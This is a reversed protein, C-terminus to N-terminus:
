TSSRHFQSRLLVVAALGGCACCSFAVLVTCAAPSPAFLAACAFVAACAVFSASVFSIPVGGFFVCAGGCSLLCCACSCISLECLLTLEQLSVACAFPLDASGITKLSFGAMRPSSAIAVLIVVVLGQVRVFVELLPVTSIADVIVDVTRCSTGPIAPRQYRLV